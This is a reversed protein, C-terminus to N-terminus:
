GMMALLKICWAEPQRCRGCSGCGKDGQGREQRRRPPDSVHEKRSANFPSRAMAAQVIRGKRRRPRRPLGWIRCLDNRQLLAFSRAFQTRAFARYLAEGGDKHATTGTRM